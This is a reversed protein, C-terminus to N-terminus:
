EQVSGGRERSVVLAPADCWDCLCPPSFGLLENQVADETTTQGHPYRWQLDMLEYSNLNYVM